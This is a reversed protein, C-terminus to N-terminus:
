REACGTFIFAHAEEFCQRANNDVDLLLSDLGYYNELTRRGEHLGRGFAVLCLGLLLLLLLQALNSTKIITRISM